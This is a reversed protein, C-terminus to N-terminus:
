SVRLDSLSIGLDKLSGGRNLRALSEKQQQYAMYLSNARDDFTLDNISLVRMTLSVKARIPNLITDFAEETISFETLRVPIIRHKSWIFLIIPTEMPIIEITGGAALGNNQQLVDSTPYVITELAALQPYIGVNVATSDQTAHELQDTADIEAELKYTEIPPGKLRMAEMRDGSEAGTGQIQLTRTLSDPNYQLTIIRQVAGNNPDLLVIGGKLISPSGPFTTM